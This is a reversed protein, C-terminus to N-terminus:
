HVVSDRYKGPTIGEMKKFARIFVNASYFGIEQSIQNITDGSTKLLEKAKEIRLRVIYEALGEGNQEKFYKSLYNMSISFVDAIMGVSLEPNTYNQEVFEKINESRLDGMRSKNDGSLSCLQRIYEYLKEKIDRISEVDSVQSSLSSLGVTDLSTRAGEVAITAKLVTSVVESVLVRLMNININKNQLNTEFVEGTLQVAKEYDGLTLINMLQRQTDISYEHMKTNYMIDDYVLTHKDQIFFRYSMIELAQRYLQPLNKINETMQSIACTFEIGLQETLFQNAFETQKVIYETDTVAGSCNIVCAYLDDAECFCTEAAESMLESFVNSIVFQATKYNEWDVGGENDLAVGLEMINFLVVMYHSANFEINYEKLYKLNDPTLEINGMLVKSLFAERLHDSQRRMKQEARTKEKYIENVARQINAFESGEVRRGKYLQGLLSEVPAYSMKSFAYAMGGGIAFCLLFGLLFVLRTSNVKNSYVKNSVTHVYRWPSTKSTAMSVVYPKGDIKMTATGEQVAEKPLAAAKDSTFLVENNEDLIFLDGTNKGTVANLNSNLAEQSLETVVVAPKNNRANIYGHILLIKRGGNEERIVKYAKVGGGAFMDREWQQVAPYYSKYFSEFANQKTYAGESRICLDLDEFLVMVDTVMDKKSIYLSLDVMVNRIWDNRQQVTCNPLNILNKVSNGQIIKYSNSEAESFYDDYITRFQSILTTNARGVEQEITQLAMNYGFLNILISVVVILSYSLLWFYFQKRSRVAQILRNLM